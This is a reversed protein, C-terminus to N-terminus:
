VSYTRPQTATSTLAFNWQLRDKWSLNAPSALFQPIRIDQHLIFMMPGAGDFGNWADYQGDQPQTPLMGFGAGVGALSVLWPIFPIGVINPTWGTFTGTEFSGNSVLETASASAFSFLVGTICLLVKQKSM